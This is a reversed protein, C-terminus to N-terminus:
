LPKPVSVQDCIKQLKPKHMPHIKNTECLTKFRPLALPQQLFLRLTVQEIDEVPDDKKMSRWIIGMWIELKEWDKAEELSQTVTGRSEPDMNQSAGEMHYWDLKDLLCWYHSSLSELGATLCVVSILLQAWRGEKVMDGVDVNLCNLLHVTDLVSAELERDWIHEIAYITTQRLRPSFDEDRRVRKAFYYVYSGPQTCGGGAIWVSVVDAIAEDDNGSFATEFVWDHHDTYHLQLAPQDNSPAGLRFGIELAVLLTLIPVELTGGQINNSTKGLRVPDCSPGVQSFEGEVILSLSDPVEDIALGKEERFMSRLGVDLTSPPLGKQGLRGAAESIASCWQYAMPTLCGPRNEWAALFEMLYDLHRLLNGHAIIEKMRMSLHDLIAELSDSPYVFTLPSLSFFSLSVLVYSRDAAWFTEEEVCGGLLMYWMLLIDAIVAQNNVFAMSLYSKYSKLTPNQGTHTVDVLLKSVWLSHAHSNTGGSPFNFTPRGKDSNCELMCIAHHLDPDTNQFSSSSIKPIPYKSAHQYSQARAGMNIQLIAQASFYARDRMGPYLGKTTSFCAEFTSVIVGYPLDHDSDGDFWRITGALRIAADIAEPDTINQLVWCVCHMNDANQKRLSELNRVQVRLGSGNQHALPGGGTIPLQGRLKSKQVEQVLRQKANSLAQLTHLFLIITQHGARTALEKWTGVWTALAILIDKPSSPIALLEQTVVSGGIYRLVTSVPTQFPCGYSSAGAVVIGVYFLFGFATFSIVVCAVSVNISWVYRSLGCALLLLAIQLMVPLSEIFLRFQWKELGDFKRQRDGCREVM